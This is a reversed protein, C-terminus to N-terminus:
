PNFVLTCVLTTRQPNYEGKTDIKNHKHETTGMKKNQIHM